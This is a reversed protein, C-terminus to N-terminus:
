IKPIKINFQSLWDVHNNIMNLQRKRLKELLDINVHQLSSLDKVGWINYFYNGVEASTGILNEVLTTAFKQNFCSLKSLSCYISALSKEPLNEIVKTEVYHKKDSDVKVLVPEEQTVITKAIIADDAVKPKLLQKSHIKSVNNNKTEVNQKEASISKRLSSALKTAM